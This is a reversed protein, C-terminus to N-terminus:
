RDSILYQKVYKNFIFSARNHSFFSLFCLHIYLDIPLQGPVRSWSLIKDGDNILFNNSNRQQFIYCKTKKGKCIKSSSCSRIQLNKLSSAIREMGALMSADLICRQSTEYLMESVGWPPSIQLDRLCREPSQSFIDRWLRQLSKEPKKLVDKLQM